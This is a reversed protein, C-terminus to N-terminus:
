LKKVSVRDLSADVAKRSPLGKHSWHTTEYVCAMAFAITEEVGMREQRAVMMGAMLADGSSRFTLAGDLEMEGMYFGKPTCFVYSRNFYSSLVWDVGEDFIRKSEVILHDLASQSINRVTNLTRHDLKVVTPLAEIASALSPGYTDIFVPINSRRACDIAERYFSSDVGPPLSGGMFVATARSILRELKWFFRQQADENIKPGRETVATEVGDEGDRIFTNIRSEGTINVFNTSIGRELLGDRIFEGTNGATFGMATSDYGLQSLIISVNVGRGGPSRRSDRSRFWRNPRFENTFYVQDMAPNPTITVIM